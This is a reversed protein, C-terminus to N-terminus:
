PTAEKSQAANEKLVPSEWNLAKTFGPDMAGRFAIDAWTFLLFILLFAFNAGFVVVNLKTKEYKLGMLFGAVIAAMVVAIGLIILNKIVHLDLWDIPLREMPLRSFGVMLAALMLLGAYVRGLTQLNYTHGPQEM